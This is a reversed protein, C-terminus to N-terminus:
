FSGKEKVEKLISLKQACNQLKREASLLSVEKNGQKTLDEVLGEYHLKESELFHISCSLAIEEATTFVPIKEDKLSELKVEIDAIKNLEKDNRYPIEKLLVQVMDIITNRRNMESM